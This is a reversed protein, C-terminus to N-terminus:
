LNVYRGIAANVRFGVSGRMVNPPDELFCLRLEKRVRLCSAPTQQWAKKGKRTAASSKLAKAEPRTKSQRVFSGNGGSRVKAKLSEMTLRFSV